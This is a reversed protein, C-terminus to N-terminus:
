RTIICANAAAHLRRQDRDPRGGVDEPHRGAPELFEMGRMPDRRKGLQLYGLHGATQVGGGGIVGLRDVCLCAPDHFGDVLFELVHCRIQLCCALVDEREGGDRQFCIHELLGYSRRPRSIRRLVSTTPMKGSRARM